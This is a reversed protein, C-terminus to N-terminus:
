KGYEASEFTYTFKSPIDYTGSLIAVVDEVFVREEDTPIVFVKVPSDPASIEGGVGRELNNNREEDITVGMYGLNRCIKDRLLPANEGVGATFVIADVGGLVAAYAGIYKLLHYAEVDFALRCRYESGPLDDRPPAEGPDGMHEEIDRRDVYKGSVGLVGSLRNMVRYVTDTDMGLSQQCYVPIAPDIDGCRTGMVVGELPTLGMSTDVSAGKGVAAVSAGNGIHCTIINVEDPKKGLMVAARRSVYLHSTGHFGYRRIGFDTYWDYPLAYIYAEPPMTQHFATDFVAIHPIDPMVERAAEIGLINPPNHLPALNLLGKLVRIVDDDIVTSQIFDEGGHVFRHGVASVLGLDEIVGYKPDVLLELVLSIAAAHDDCDRKITVSDCGPVKHKASSGGIGIREVLGAALSQQAEWDYLSYKVSSSGCNLTLIKM